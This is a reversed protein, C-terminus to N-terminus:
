GLMIKNIEGKNRWKAIKFLGFCANRRFRRNKEILETKAKEYDYEFKTENKEKNSINKYDSSKM